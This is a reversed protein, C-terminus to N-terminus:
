VDIRVPLGTRISDACAIALRTARLGERWGTPPQKGSNVAHVFAHNEAFVGLEDDDHETHSKDGDYFTASKLRDHLHVSKVGDMTQFSFKSVYPTAGADTIALSAVHGNAFRITAAITDMTEADPHTIAGGTAFVSVPESSMLHCVLDFAHVGQSMVNGGGIVPQQAWFKDPWRSDTVQAIIMLPNQLFAVAREVMPTYRLKFASMLIVGNEEVAEGILECEEVTLAMPKELMVHKGANCARISLDAHTDHYTCIYVVDIDPDRFIRSPDNTAYGGGYEVFFSDARSVDVDCYAVARIGDIYQLARLHESAM